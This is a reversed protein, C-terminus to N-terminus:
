RLRQLQSHRQALVGKGEGRLGPHRPQAPQDCRFRDGRRGRLRTPERVVPGRAPVIPHRRDPGRDLSQGFQRETGFEEGLIGDDPFREALASRFMDETERDARTVPSGDSKTEIDLGSREFWRRSVEGAARTICLATQATHTLSTTM